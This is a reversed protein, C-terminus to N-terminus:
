GTTGDGKDDPVTGSGPTKNGDSLKPDRTAEKSVSGKSRTKHATQARQKDAPQEEGKQDKVIGQGSHGMVQEETARLAGSAQHIERRTSSM